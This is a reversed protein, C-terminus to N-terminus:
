RTPQTALRHSIRLPRYLPRSVPTMGVQAALAGFLIWTAKYYDLTVSSAGVTWALLLVTWFHREVRPLRTVCYAVSAILLLMVCGGIVGLEVLVSLFTNHAAYSIGLRGLVSTGFAGAGVGLFPHNRFVELGAAWITTRHSLTGERVESGITGLREWTASPVVFLACAVVGAVVIAPVYWKPRPLTSAAAPLLAFAVVLALLSARSGTLLIATVAVIIQFGLVYSSLRSHRRSLLYLSMPISLVLLIGLANENFGSATYRQEESANHGLELRIQAATRGVLFNYITSTASVYTGLVYAMLVGMIRRETGALEWILVVMVLLQVNTGLRAATNDPDMSWIMSLASWAVFGLMWYQLGSPKRIRQTGLIRLATCGAALLGVWRSIMFGGLLPFQEEWPITFILLGLCYFAIRDLTSGLDQPTASRACAAGARVATYPQM